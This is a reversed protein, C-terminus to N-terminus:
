LQVIIKHRFAVILLPKQFFLKSVMKKSLNFKSMKRVNLVNFFLIRYVYIHYKLLMFFRDCM